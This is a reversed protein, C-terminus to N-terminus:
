GHSPGQILPAKFHSSQSCCHAPGEPFALKSTDRSARRLQLRDHGDRQLRDHKQEFLKHVSIGAVARIQGDYGEGPPDIKGQEPARLFLRTHEGRM